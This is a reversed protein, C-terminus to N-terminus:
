QENEAQSSVPSHGLQTQSLLQSCKTLNAAFRLVEKILSLKQSHTVDCSPFTSYWLIQEIRVKSNEKM